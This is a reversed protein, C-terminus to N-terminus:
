FSFFSVSHTHTHSHTPEGVFRHMAGPKIMYVLMLFPTMSVQAAIVLTRTVATAEFMKM